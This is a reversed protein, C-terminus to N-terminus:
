LPVYNGGNGVNDLWKVGAPTLVVTGAHNANTLWVFIGGQSPIAVINSFGGTQFDYFDGFVVQTNLWTTVRLNAAGYMPRGNPLFMVGATSGAPLKISEQASAPRAAVTSAAALIIALLWPASNGIRGRASQIGLHTHM